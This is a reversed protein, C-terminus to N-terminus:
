IIEFFITFYGVIFIYIIYIKLKNVTFKYCFFLRCNYTIIKAVSNNNISLYCFIINLSYELSAM